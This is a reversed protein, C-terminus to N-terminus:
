PQGEKQPPQIEAPLDRSDFEVFALAMSLGTCMASEITGQIPPAPLDAGARRLKAAVGALAERVQQTAYAQAYAHMQTWDYCDFHVKDWGDYSMQEGQRRAPRPLAPMQPTDAM